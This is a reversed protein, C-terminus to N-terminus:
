DARSIYYGLLEKNKTTDKLGYGWYSMQPHIHSHTISLNLFYKGLYLIVCILLYALQNSIELSVLYIINCCIYTKDDCKFLPVIIQLWKWNWPTYQINLIKVSFRM